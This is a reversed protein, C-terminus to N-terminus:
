LPTYDRRAQKFGRVQKCQRQLNHLQAPSRLRRLVQNQVQGKGPMGQEHGRIHLEGYLLPLPPPPRSPTETNFSNHSFPAVGLGIKAKSTQVLVELQQLLM